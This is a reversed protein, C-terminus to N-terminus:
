QLLFYSSPATAITESTWQLKPSLQKYWTTLEEDITALQAYNQCNPQSYHVQITDTLEGAIDMLDLLAEYIETEFKRESGSPQLGGLRQGSVAQLM